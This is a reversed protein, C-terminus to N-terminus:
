CRSIAIFGPNQPLQLWLSATTPAPKKFLGVFMQIIPIIVIAAQIIAAYQPAVTAIIPALAQLIGLIADLNFKAKTPSGANANVVGQAVQFVGKGQSLAGLVANLTATDVTGNSNIAGRSSKPIKVEGSQVLDQILETLGKASVVEPDTTGKPPSTPVQALVQIAEDQTM